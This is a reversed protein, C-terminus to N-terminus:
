GCPVEIIVSLGSPKNEEFRFKGKDGFLSTIREKVDELINEIREREKYGKGTDTIKVRIMDERKEISLSIRGGSLNKDLTDNIANEVIPQILMSPFPLDKSDPDMEIQYEFRQDMSIKFIALYSRILEMEQEITTVPDRTKVLTARLYQMFYMQMTKAKEPATDFLDSIRDMSAFLFQPEVRAQLLNLQNEMLQKESLIRGTKEEIYTKEAILSREVLIVIGIIYFGLMLTLLIIRSSLLSGSFPSLNFDFYLTFGIYPILFGILYTVTMVVLRYFGGVPKVIYLALIIILWSYIPGISGILWLLTIKLNPFYLWKIVYSTPILIIAIIPYYRYAIRKCVESPKIKVAM